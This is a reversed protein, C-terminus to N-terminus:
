IGHKREAVLRALADKTPCKPCSTQMQGCARAPCGDCYEQLCTRATKVAERAEALPDPSRRNWKAAIEELGGIDFIDYEFGCLACVIIVNEYDISVDGGCFPCPKLTM